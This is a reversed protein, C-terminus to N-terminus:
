KRTSRAELEAIALRRRIADREDLKWAPVITFSAWDRHTPSLRPPRRDTVADRPRSEASLRYERLKLQALPM